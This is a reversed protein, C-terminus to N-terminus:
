KINFWIYSCIIVSYYRAIWNSFSCRNFNNFINSICKIRVKWQLLKELVLKVMLLYQEMLVKLYQIWLHEHQKNTFIKKNQVLNIKIILLDFLGFMSGIMFLMSFSFIDMMVPIVRDNILDVPLVDFLYKDVNHMLTLLELLIYIQISTKKKLIFNFSFRECASEEEKDSM